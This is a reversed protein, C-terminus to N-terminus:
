LSHGKWALHTWSPPAQKTCVSAPTSCPLSNVSLFLSFLEKVIPSCSLTLSSTSPPAFGAPINLERVAASNFLHLSAFIGRTFLGVPPNAPAHDCLVSEFVVFRRFVHSYEPFVYLICWFYVRFVCCKRFVASYLLICVFYICFVASYLLICLICLICAFYVM